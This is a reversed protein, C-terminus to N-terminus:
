ESSAKWLIEFYYKYSKAIEENRIVIGLPNEKWTIIAVNNGSIITTTSHNFNVPFFRTKGIFEKVFNQDKENKNHIARCHIKNETKKRQYQSYYYPLFEKFKEESGYKDYDAKLNIINEFITKLGEKGKFVEVEEIPPSSEYVEKLEPLIEQIEKKRLEIFDLLRQPNAATFIQKNRNKVSSVLGRKILKRLVDYTNKRYYGTKEAIESASSSNFELLTLFIKVESKTLGINQLLEPRM